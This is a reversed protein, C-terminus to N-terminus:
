SRREGSKKRRPEDGLLNNSQRSNRSAKGAYSLITSSGSLKGGGGRFGTFAWNFSAGRERFRPQANPEGSDGSQREGKEEGRREEGRKEEEEGRGEEGRRGEREIERRGTRKSWNEATERELL